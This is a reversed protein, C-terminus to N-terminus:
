DRSEQATQIGVYYHNKPKAGAKITLGDIHIDGTYDEPVLVMNPKLGTLTTYNYVVEEIFKNYDTKPGKTFGLMDGPRLTKSRM